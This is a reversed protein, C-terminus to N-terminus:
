GVVTIRINEPLVRVQVIEHPSSYRTVDGDPDVIGAAMSRRAYDRVLKIYEVYYRVLAYLGGDDVVSSISGYAPIALASMDPAYDWRRLAELLDSVVVAGGTGVQVAHLVNGFFSYWIVSCLEDLAVSSSVGGKSLMWESISGVPSPVSVNVNATVGSSTVALSIDYSPPTGIFHSCVTTGPVIDNWQYSGFDGVSEKIADEYSFWAKVGVVGGADYALDAFKSTYM